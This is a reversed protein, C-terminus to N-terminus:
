MLYNYGSISILTITTVIIGAIIAGLSLSFYTEKKNMKFFWALVTGTYVGTIPLPIAVFFMLAILEFKTGLYRELKERKSEIYYNFLRKYFKINLFFTHVHNLFFYVLPIVLLNTIVCIFYVLIFNYGLSIGFPIAGRLESIPALSLLMMYIIPNNELIM